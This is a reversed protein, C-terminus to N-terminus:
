LFEFFSSFFNGVVPGANQYFGAFFVCTDDIDAVTPRDREFHLAM